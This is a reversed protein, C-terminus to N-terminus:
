ERTEENKGVTKASRRGRGMATASQETVHNQGRKLYRATTRSSVCCREGNREESIPESGGTGVPSWALGGSTVRQEETGHWGCVGQYPPIFSFAKAEMTCARGIGGKASRNMM